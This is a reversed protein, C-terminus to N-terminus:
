KEDGGDFADGDGRSFNDGVVVFEEGRLEVEEKEGEPPRTPRGPAQNAAGPGAATLASGPPGRCRSTPSGPWLERRPRKKEGM